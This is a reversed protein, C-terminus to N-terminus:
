KHKGKGKYIHGRREITTVFIQNDKIQFLTRIDSKRLRYDNRGKLKKIDGAPPEASLKELAGLLLSKDPENMQDLSKQAKKSLVVRM